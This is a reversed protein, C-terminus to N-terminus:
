KNQSSASAPTHSPQAREGAAIQKRSLATSLAILCGKAKAKVAGEEEEEVEQKEAMGCEERDISCSIGWRLTFAAEREAKRGGEKGVKPESMAEATSNRTLSHVGVAADEEEAASGKM